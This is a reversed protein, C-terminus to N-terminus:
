GTGMARQWNDLRTSLKGEDREIGAAIARFAARDRTRVAAALRAYRSRLRDLLTITATPESGAPVLPRLERGAVAYARAVRVATRAAGEARSARGLRARLRVREADLTTTVAPLRSLFAANAGVPLFRGRALRLGRLARDCEDPAVVAASCAITAIGQTTPVVVVDLVRQGKPTRIYHYASIEGVREVQPKAAPSKMAELRAPLLSPRRAPLLAIAVEANWTRAYTAQARRLGPVAPGTRIPTWGKPLTLRLDGSSATPLAPPAAARPPPKASDQGFALALLAGLLVAIVPLGVLLASSSPRRGVTASVHGLASM